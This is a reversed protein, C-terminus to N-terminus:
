GGIARQYREVSRRVVGSGDATVNRRWFAGYIQEFRYPAVADAIRRVAVGDLPIYNPYSYMFSVSRRDQGVQLVDGSLLAGRGEAGAAWHLVTGGPFHGGCRILTIGEAVALTEGEWLVIAPDHRM